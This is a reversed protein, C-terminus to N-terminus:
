FAQIDKQLTTDSFRSGMIRKVDFVTNTPNKTIQNKAGEGVLHGTDNCAVCSPTITNGQENPFMEVRNHQDFWAAVCSYTTGLDIGIPITKVRTSMKSYTLQGSVSMQMSKICWFLNLKRLTVQSSGKQEPPTVKIDVPSGM